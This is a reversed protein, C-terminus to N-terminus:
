HGARKGMIQKQVGVVVDDFQQERIALYADVDSGVRIQDPDITLDVPERPAFLWVLALLGVFGLLYFRVSKFKVFITRGWKKYIQRNNM